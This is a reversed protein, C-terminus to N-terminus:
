KVLIKSTAQGQRRIYVGPAPTGNVRVGQLNFYEVPAEASDAAIGTVGAVVDDNTAGATYGTISVTSAINPYEFYLELPSIVQGKTYTGPLTYTYVNASRSSVTEKDLFDNGVHLKPKLGEAKAGDGSMELTATIKGDLYSLTLKASYALDRANAEYTEGPLYANKLTGNYLFYWVAADGAPVEIEPEDTSEPVEYRVNTVYLLDGAINSNGVVCFPYVKGPNETLYNYYTPFATAINFSFEQWEETLGSIAVENGYENDADATKKAVLKIKWVTIDHNSLNAKACFKLTADKSHLTSCDFDTSAVYGYGCWSDAGSYGYYYVSRGDYTEDAVGKQDGNWSEVTSFPIQAQGDGLADLGSYVVYDTANAANIAAVAMFASLFIKKM